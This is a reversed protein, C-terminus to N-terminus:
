RLHIMRKTYEEKILPEGIFNTAGSNEREFCTLIDDIKRLCGEDVRGLEKEKILLKTIKYFMEYNKAEVIHSYPHSSDECLAICNLLSKTGGLRKPIILHHLNANDKTIHYGMFDTDTIHDRVLLIRTAHLM